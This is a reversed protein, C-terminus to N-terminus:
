TFQWDILLIQSVCIEIQVIHGLPIMCILYYAFLLLGYLGGDTSAIQQFSDHYIICSQM